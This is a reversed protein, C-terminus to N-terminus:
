VPSPNVVRRTPRPAVVDAIWRFAATLAGAAGTLAVVVSVQVVVPSGTTPLVAHGIVSRSLWATMALAVGGGALFAGDYSTRRLAWAAAAAVAAVAPLAMSAYSRGVGAPTAFQNALQVGLVLLATAVTAPAAVRPRRFCAAVAGVVGVISVAQWPWRAPAPLLDLHGEIVAPQGDVEIKVTWDLVRGSTADGLQPPHSLSMWHVRHDHWLAVGHEGIRRWNPTATSDVDDPLPSTSGYRKRNLWTAPSRLNEEVSGDAGIRVYPEDEYGLVVVTHGAAVRLRLFSDGGTVDAVVDPEAPTVGTVTSRYNTPRAADAAVPAVGVVLVGVNVALGRLLARGLLGRAARAM